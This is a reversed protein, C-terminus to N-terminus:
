TLHQAPTRQALAQQAARVVHFAERLTRQEFPTLESPRLRSDPTVGAAAQRSQHALRVHSIFELADVLSAAIAPDLAGARGAALLRSRTNVSVLGAGLAHARALDVIAGVGGRKLDLTDKHDGARALVFGRFFGLPPENAVAAAVLHGLFNHGAAGLNRHGARPPRATGRGWRPAPTSSSAPRSSPM